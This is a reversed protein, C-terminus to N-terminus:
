LNNTKHLNKLIVHDGVQIDSEKAGRKQDTVQKGKDEMERDRDLVEEDDFRNMLKSLCPLKDKMNRGFMLKAPSKGATEQAISKYIILYDELDLKWNRGDAVSKRIRSMLSHNQREVLGNMQAM